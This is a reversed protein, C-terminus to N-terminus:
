KEIRRSRYDTNFVDLSPKYATIIFAENNLEDVSAVVHIPEEKIFGLFLGSPYPKDDDYEKICEGKLIVDLVHKQMIQRQLIRELVHKRWTINKSQIAKRLIEVDFKRSIM